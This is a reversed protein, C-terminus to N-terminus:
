TLKGCRSPSIRYHTSVSAGTPILCASPSQNEGWPIEQAWGGGAAPIVHTCCAKLASAPPSESVSRETWSTNQPQYSHSKNKWVNVAHKLARNNDITNLLAKITERTTICKHLKVQLACYQTVDQVDPSCLLDLDDLTFCRRHPHQQSPTLAKVAM